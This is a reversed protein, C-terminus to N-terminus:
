TKAAPPSAAFSEILPSAIRRFADSFQSRHYIRVELPATWREDGAPVLTGAEIEALATRRPLWAIGHGQAAMAKLSEALDDVYRTELFAQRGPAHRLEDVVKGLYANAGYSLYPRAAGPKGPLPHRPAGKPGPACLPVLQDREILLYPYSTSTLFLPVSPNSFVLLYHCSGELFAQLCNQMNECLMHVKFPGVSRYFADYYRPYYHIALSHLAAVRVLSRDEAGIERAARRAARLSKVIELGADRFSIGAATLTIPYSTRDILEVGLYNELSKIRRSLAPQTVHREEAARSFNGTQALTLFDELFRLGM